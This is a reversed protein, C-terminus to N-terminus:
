KEFLFPLQDLFLSASDDIQESLSQRTEISRFWNRHVFDPSKSDKRYTLIVISCAAKTFADVARLEHGLQETWKPNSLRRIDKLLDRKPISYKKKLLLHVVFFVVWRRELANRAVAKSGTNDLAQSEEIQIKEEKQANSTARIRECLFWAGSLEEFKDHSLIDFVQDSDGYLKAYGGDKQADFLFKTGGKMEFPEFFFSYVTKTFEEMGIPIFRSRSEGSRKNKYWFCKGGRHLKLFSDAIQKQIPDNSRFDSIKVANQTNNYMTMNDLFEGDKPSHSVLTVRILVDASRVIDGKKAYIKSLSRVTQAGNIISLNRCLLIGKDIKSEIKTAIASIGNNFFFFSSPHDVATKMIGKNTSTDGIYNRINSNFISSKYNKFLEFLQGANIRGVYSDRDEIDYHIWPPDGKEFAFRVSIEHDVTVGTSKADRFEKNLATEDFFEIDVREEISDLSTIPLQGQAMRKEIDDSGRGTTIYVLRFSDSEWDILALEDALRQNKPIAKGTKPNLRTLVNCFYDFEKASETGKARYKAQIILVFNDRRVIFDVGCDDKGDIFCSDFDETDDPILGPNKVKTIENVFFQTMRKSRIVADMSDFNTGEAKISQSFAQRFWHSEQIETDKAM